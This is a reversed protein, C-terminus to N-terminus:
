CGIPLACGGGSDIAVSPKHPLSDIFEWIAELTGWDKLDYEAFLTAVAPLVGMVARQRDHAKRNVTSASIPM